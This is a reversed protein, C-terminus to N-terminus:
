RAAAHTVKRKSINRIADARAAEELLVELEPLESDWEVLAPAGEFFAGATEFLRWVDACVPRDHTDILITDAGVQVKDHGALHLERVHRSPFAVLAALPDQGENLATVYVNNVDCLLGCGTREALAELFQPESITSHAYSFYRSPNEVLLQRGLLSQVQDVHLCALDLAEETYALPFLDNTYVGDLVSVSLHDSVLLPDIDDVLTRIRKVHAADLTSSGISMGVCHLSIAYDPRLEHLMRRMMGGALHNEAHVEIFPLEPRRSRFANYHRTRLGIGTAPLGTKPQISRYM